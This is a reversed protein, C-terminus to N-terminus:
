GCDDDCCSWFLVPGIPVAAAIFYPALFLHSWLRSSAASCCGIGVSVAQPGAWRAAAAQSSRLCREALKMCPGEDTQRGGFMASDVIRQHHAMTHRPTRYARALLRYSNAPFVTM